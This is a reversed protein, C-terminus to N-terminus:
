QLAHVAVEFAPGPPLPSVLLPEAPKNEDPAIEILLFDPATKRIADKRLRIGRRRRRISEPPVVRFYRREPELLDAVPHPLIEVERLVNRDDDLFHRAHLLSTRRDFGCDDGDHLILRWAHELHLM